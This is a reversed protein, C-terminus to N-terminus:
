IIKFLTEKVKEDKPTVFGFNKLASKKYENPIEFYPHSKGYIIGTKGPNNAFVKSTNNLNKYQLEKPLKKNLEKRHEDLNTIEGSRRQTAICRCNWDNPPFHTDWFRDDVSLIIGDWARHEYRVRPDGVTIYQLLPFIDKYRQTEHWSEAGQAISFASDLETKLYNINFQINHENAIERFEKLGRKSGDEKFVANSLISQQQFTKAGSFYSINQRYKLASAYEATGETFDMPLGFGLGVGAQINMYTYEYLEVPLNKLTYLGAFTGAIWATSFEFETPTLDVDHRGSDNWKNSCIAVAQDKGTGEKIMFSICRSMFRNQHEGIYPTPIPM